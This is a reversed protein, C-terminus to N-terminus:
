AALRRGLRRRGAADAGLALSEVENAAIRQLDRLTAPRKGAVIDAMLSLNHAENQGIRMRARCAEAHPAGGFVAEPDACWAALEALADLADLIRAHSFQPLAAVVAPRARAIAQMLNDRQRASLAATGHNRAADLATSLYWAADAPYLASRDLDDGISEVRYAAESEPSTPPADGYLWEPEDFYPATQASPAAM